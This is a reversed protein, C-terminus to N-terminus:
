SRGREDDVILRFLEDADRANRMQERLRASQLLMSLASLFNLHEGSLDPSSLVLVVISIPLAAGVEYVARPSVALAAVIGTVGQVRAHPISVGIDVMATTAMAERAFVRRAADEATHAAVQGTAVLRGVLSTVINEFSSSATQVAISGAPLADSVRIVM